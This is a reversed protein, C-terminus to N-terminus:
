PGAGRPQSSPSSANGHPPVLVVVRGLRSLDTDARVVVRQLLEPNEPLPAAEIVTGLRFGRADAYSFEDALYVTDGVRVDDTLGLDDAIFLGADADLTVRADTERAPLISGPQNESPPAVIRVSLDPATETVLAVSASFPGVPEVVRGVVQSGYVVTQGPAIGDASGTSLNLVGGSGGPLVTATVQRFEDLNQRALLDGIMGLEEVLQKLEANQQRLRQVETLALDLDARLTNEPTDRLAPNTGAPDSGVLWRQVPRAPLVAFSVAGHALKGPVFAFRGPLLAAVAFLGAIVFVVQRANLM